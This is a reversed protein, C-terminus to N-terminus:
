QQETYKAARTKSRSHQLPLAVRLAYLPALCFVIECGPLVNIAHVLIHKCVASCPQCYANGSSSSHALCPCLVALDM